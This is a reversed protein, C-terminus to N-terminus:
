LPARFLCFFYFQVSYRCRCSGKVTKGDEAPKQVQTTTSGGRGTFEILMLGGVLIILYLTAAFYLFESLLKEFFETTNPDPCYGGKVAGFHFNIIMLFIWIDIVSIM